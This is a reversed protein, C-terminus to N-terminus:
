YESPLLITTAYRPALGDAARPADIEVDTIVWLRTRDPLEYASLIREGTRLAHDNADHDESTLDGWDGQAHRAVLLAPHIGLGELVALAGPTILIQGLDFLRDRGVVTTAVCVTGKDSTL